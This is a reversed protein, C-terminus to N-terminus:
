IEGRLVREYHEKTGDWKIANCWYQRTMEFGLGKLQEETM